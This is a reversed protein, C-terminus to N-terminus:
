VQWTRREETNKRFHEAVLLPQLNTYHCAVLYQKRKTLDFSILPRIHDIQWIMRWNDWSMGDRFMTALYAKLEDVSCGIDRIASGTQANRAVASTLNSRLSKRLRYNPDSAMRDANIERWRERNAHNYAKKVEALRPQNDAHYQRMRELAADRNEEHWRRARERM